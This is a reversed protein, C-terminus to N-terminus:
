LWFETHSQLHWPILQNWFIKITIILFPKKEISLGTLLPPLLVRPSLLPIRDVAYKTHCIQDTKNPILFLIGTFEIYPSIVLPSPPYPFNIVNLSNLCDLNITWNWVQKTGTFSSCWKTLKKVAQVLPTSIKLLLGIESESPTMLTSKAQGLKLQIIYTHQPVPIPPSSMETVVEKCKVLLRFHKRLAWQWDTTCSLTSRRVCINEAVQRM